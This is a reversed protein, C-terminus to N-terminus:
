PVIEIGENTSFELFVVRGQVLHQDFDPPRGFQVFGFSTATPIKIAAKPPDFSAFGARLGLSSRSRETGEM